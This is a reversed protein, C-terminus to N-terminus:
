TCPIYHNSPLPGERGGGWWLCFGSDGVPNLWCDTRNQGSSMAFSSASFARIIFSISCIFSGHGALSTYPLARNIPSWPTKKRWSVDAPVSGFPVCALCHGEQHESVHRQSALPFAAKMTGREIRALTQRLLQCSGDLDQLGSPAGMLPPQTTM